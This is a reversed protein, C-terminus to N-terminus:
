GAESTSPNHPSALFPPPKLLPELCINNFQDTEPFLTRVAPALVTATNYPESVHIVFMQNINSFDKKADDDNNQKSSQHHEKMPCPSTHPSVFATKGAWGHPCTNQLAIALVILAILIKPMGFNLYFNYLFQSSFSRNRLSNL